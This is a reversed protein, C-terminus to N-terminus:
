QVQESGTKAGNEYTIVRVLKGAEYEYRKGDMLKKNKFVGEVDVTGDKNLLKNYGDVVEGKGLAKRAPKGSYKKVREDFEKGQVLSETKEPIVKGEDFYRRAKVSGDEYFELLEGAEKGQKWEGLYMLVGNEHFYRQEGERKGSSNYSWDYKLNGNEFYYKYQGSWRNGKWIGEEQLQGSRYYIKAYGNAVNDAFTLEHKKNGNPYYKTWVGTKKSNRYQGEEVLQGVEYGRYKGDTNYIKWTGQKEGNADRLNITDGSEVDFSQASGTASLIMMGCLLLLMQRM